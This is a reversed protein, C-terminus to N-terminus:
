GARGGRRATASAKRPRPGAVRHLRVPRPARGVLGKAELDLQVAKLWWGAKNGDPFLDGDLLPLLAARAEAVTIGPQTVPLVKLLAERMAAYKARDVRYTNGPSMVNEIEVKDPSTGM